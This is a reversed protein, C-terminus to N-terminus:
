RYSDLRDLVTGVASVPGSLTEVFRLRKSHCNCLAVAPLSDSTERLPEFVGFSGSEGDVLLPFPLDYQRDWLRAREHIAPLVPLVATERERFAGYHDRLSRVLKRSDPCYHGRLLVVTAHECGEAVSGADVVDGGAGVNELEFMGWREHSEFDSVM